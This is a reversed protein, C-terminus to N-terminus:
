IWVREMQGGFMGSASTSLVMAVTAILPSGPQYTLCEALIELLVPPTHLTKHAVFDPIRCSIRQFGSVPLM